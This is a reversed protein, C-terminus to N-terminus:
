ASIRSLIQEWTLRGQDDHFRNPHKIIKTETRIPFGGLVNSSVEEMIESALKATRELKYAPAEILVADHLPACVNIKANILEICAMRLIEAGNGQMPFNLITRQKTDEGSVNLTWGLATQLSGTSLATDLARGQWDWYSSYLSKHNQILNYAKVGSIGLRESLGNSSMGYLVGLACQKYQERVSGHTQKTATSPVARSQKAFELYPDGMQYARKMAPDNSLIAAIAFEQQEYDIYILGNGKSPRILSRMWRPQGLIFKSTSPQNRGTVSSFPSLLSRNRSDSGITLNESRLKGRLTMGEYLPLLHPHTRSLAKLVSNEVSPKGTETLPWDIGSKKVFDCFRHSLFHGDKFLVGYCENLGDGIGELLLDRNERIRDLTECDVPIGNWEIAAVSQTYKGRLFAHELSINPLVKTLLEHTTNVDSECYDMIMQKEKTTWPGGGLILKRMSEKEDIAPIHKVGFVRASGLLNLKSYGSMGNTLNRCEAHLCLCNTPLPWGLSIYCGWEASAFFAVVPSDSGRLWEPLAISPENHLWYRFTAGNPWQKGVLCVPTPRNGDTAIFEFDIITANEM